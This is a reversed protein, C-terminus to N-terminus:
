LSKNSKAMEDDGFEDEDSVLEEQDIAIGDEDEDDEDERIDEKSEDDPQPESQLELQKEDDEVDEEEADIDDRKRKSGRLDATPVKNLEMMESKGRSKGLMAREEMGPPPIFWPIKGRMYDNLVMKAVTDADAEGGKLLKGYKRALRDLFDIADTYDKIGYTREVHKTKCRKLVAAVYQAPNEVQEIRLAGRLLIDQDEDTQSPPVVGPCDIMYIRKMLTIYQWVKTEGPIPATKCVMKKKLTNIVSSKGSNPYGIM